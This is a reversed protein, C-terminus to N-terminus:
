SGTCQSSAYVLQPLLVATGSTSAALQVGADSPLASPDIVIPTGSPTVPPPASGAPVMHPPGAPAAPMTDYPEPFVAKLVPSSQGPAGPVGDPYPQCAPNQEQGFTVSAPVGDARLTSQLGAPDQLERVTVSIDGDALKTVFWAALQTTPQVPRSAVTDSTTRRDTQHAAEAGAPALTTVALAVGAAVAVGGAAGPIVRRTRQVARGRRIVDDVPVTMRVRDRQTRVLTMLEDDNM